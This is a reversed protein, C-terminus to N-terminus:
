KPLCSRREGITEGAPVIVLSRDGRLILRDGTSRLFVRVLDPLRRLREGALDAFKAVFTSDAPDPLSKPAMALTEHVAAINADLEALRELATSSVLDVTEVADLLRSRRRILDRLEREKASRESRIRDQLAGSPSLLEALLLACRRPSLVTDVVSATVAADLVEVSISVGRCSARGARRARSCQYYRHREGNRKRKGATELECAEGCLGCRLLGGGLLLPSSCARGPNKVPDRLARERQVAEFEFGTVIPEVALAVARDTAERGWVYRGSVTEDGLVRLVRDRDWLRGRYRIGRINLMGAIQVAGRGAGYLAYIEAVIEAEQCDIKLRRIPRPQADQREVLYGFPPRSGPFSGRLAASRLGNSTRRGNVASEWEAFSEFLQEMLRGEPDDSTPQQVAVVRVGHRALLAKCSRARSADRMFRTAHLVVVQSASSENSCVQDLMAQFQPRQDDRGSHGEDVFTGQVELKCASAHRRLEDLQGVLSGGQEETSVRAYLVVSSPKRPLRKRAM